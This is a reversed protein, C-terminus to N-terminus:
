KGSRKAYEIAAYVDRRSMGLSRAMQAVIQGRTLAQKEPLLGIEIGCRFEADYNPKNIVVQPPEVVITLEGRPETLREIVSSVTGRIFEQHVKTLERALCIQREGLFQQAEDLTARIRHPADFFTVTTPVSALTKLWDSRDKARSPAFGYITLPIVPFGSAIVAALPASAGPIPDVSISAQVCAQVLEVGPDSVGPTGADSVLALSQGATLRALIQPIRGRANHAHFSLTPTSIGHHALLRATRRTDEAAILQVDRLVRLARLTVDELNGIPTAVVFLTGAM